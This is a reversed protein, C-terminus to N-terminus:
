AAALWRWALKAPTAAPTADAVIAVANEQETLPEDVARLRELVAV